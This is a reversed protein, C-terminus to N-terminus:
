NAADFSTDPTKLTGGRRAANKLMPIFKLNAKPFPFRNLAMPTIWRHAVPGNLRVRGSVYHCLFVEAQIKFHTYAHKVRTLHRAISVTLHTEEKIERLCAAQPDEEARIKGGPFEWLGGLLGDPRRRTILIRGNKMVVGVVIHLEPIPKKQEKMPFEAVRQSEFACCLSAIPCDPCLPKAPRCILAGLEMLAQNFCGPKCNDLLRDATAQFIQSGSSRNVPQDICRLRALVRKVNGDVVAYPQDFAMSLIAAAMYDGIGPLARLTHWADPLRGAYQQVTLGAARHLNRARAYYGLGEWVKLVAQLDARALSFIDPFRRLFAQYFPIVTNVQTQQLMAESVWICYPDTTMRWPLPRLHVRYWDLLKRRVGAIWPDPLSAMTSDLFSSM